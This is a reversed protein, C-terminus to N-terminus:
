QDGIKFFQSKVLKNVANQLKGKALHAYRQTMKIDSHGMLKMVSYLDEGNEVLWSAFTHRLSHFVLKM